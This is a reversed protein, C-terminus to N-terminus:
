AHLMHTIAWLNPDSHTCCVDAHHMHRAHTHAKPWNCGLKPWREHCVLAKCLTSSAYPIQQFSQRLLRDQCCGTKTTAPPVEASPRHMTDLQWQDFSSPNSGQPPCAQQQIDEAHAKPLGLWVPPWAKTCGANCCRCSVLVVALQALWHWTGALPQLPAENRIVHLM